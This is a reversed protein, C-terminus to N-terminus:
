NRMGVASICGDYYVDWYEDDDKEIFKNQGPDNMVQYLELAAFSAHAILEAEHDFIRQSEEEQCGDHGDNNFSDHVFINVSMVVANNLLLSNHVKKNCKNNRKYPEDVGPVDM